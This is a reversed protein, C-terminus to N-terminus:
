GAGAGTLRVRLTHTGLPDTWTLTYAAVFKGPHTPTFTVRAKLDDGPNLPLGKPVAIRIGFPGRLRSTAAVIAPQNGTNAIDVTVTATHGKPVTGFAVASPAATFQSVAAVATGSLQVTAPPGDSGAITVSGTAPGAQTPTFSVQVTVSQGPKIVTGVAPLQAVSFPAAPPTVSTVTQTTTGTNTLQVTGSETTGVAVPFSGHDTVHAITLSGPAAQLGTRTGDGFLPVNVAPTRAAKVAFSVAGATGGPTAPTFSVPAHLADGKALTVPFTVPVKTSNGPKTETVQGVSFPNTATASATSVGSLTVNGAATVTATSSHSTGVPTQGFGVSPASLPAASTPTKLGFGLVNGDRTGVYV